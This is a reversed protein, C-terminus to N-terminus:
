LLRGIEVVTEARPCPREPQERLLDVRRAAREEAIVRLREAVHAYDGTPDIQRARCASLRQGTRAWRTATRTGLVRKEARRAVKTWKQVEAHITTRIEAPKMHPRRPMPLSGSITAADSLRASFAKQLTASVISPGCIRKM